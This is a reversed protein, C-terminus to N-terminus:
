PVAQGHGCATSRWPVNHRHKRKNKDNTTYGQNTDQSTKKKTFWRITEELGAALTYEPKWGTLSTILTNDGCLRFVESKGPRLRQPDVTYTVDADMLEAILDLTEAMSIETGTAINIEMGDIESGAEALALFGRATDAVFNFDRTPTLDGVM